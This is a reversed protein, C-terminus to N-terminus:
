AFMDVKKSIKCILLYIYMTSVISLIIYNSQFKIYIYEIFQFRSLWIIVVIKKVKKGKEDVCM